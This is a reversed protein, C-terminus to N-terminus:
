EYKNSSKRGRNDYKSIFNGSFIGFYRVNLFRSSYIDVITALLTFRKTLRSFHNLRNEYVFIDIYFKTRDIYVKKKWKLILYDFIGKESIM